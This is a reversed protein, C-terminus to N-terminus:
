ILVSDLLVGGVKLTVEGVRLGGGVSFAFGDGETSDGEEVLYTKKM